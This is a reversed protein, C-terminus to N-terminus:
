PSTCTIPLCGGCAKPRRASAPSWVPWRAACPRPSRRRSSSATGHRRARPHEDRPRPSRWPAWRSRRRVRRPEVAWRRALHMRIMDLATQMALYRVGSRGPETGYRVERVETGGPHALAIYVLGVPKEVTGGTPGAIGTVAIGLDTGAQKRVAEAM